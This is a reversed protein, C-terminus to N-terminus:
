SPELALRNPTVMHGLFNVKGVGFNCKSPNLRLSHEQLAELVLRLHRAHSEPTKSHVLIDDMYVLVCADPGVMLRGLVKSMSRQFTSPANTMGMPMVRWQYHGDPTTFATAEEDRPSMRLQWFGSALDMKSFCTSSRLRDFLDQANPLPFKDRITAKNLARYDVCLRFTGDAKKVLLVPSSFPSASPMIFGKMLLDAIMGRLHERETWTLRYPPRSPPTAEPQLRVHHQLDSSRLPPLTDHPKFLDSYEDVVAQVNDLPSRPPLASPSGSVVGVAAIDAEAGLPSVDVYAAYVPSRRLSRAMSKATVMTIVPTPQTASPVPAPTSTAEQRQQEGAEAGM